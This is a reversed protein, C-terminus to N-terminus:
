CYASIFRKKGRCSSKTMTNAVATSLFNLFLKTEPDHLIATVSRLMSQSLVTHAAFSMLHESSLPSNLVTWYSLVQFVISFATCVSSVQSTGYWLGNLGAPHCKTTLVQPKQDSPAPAMQPECSVLGVVPMSKSEPSSQAHDAPASFDVTILFLDSNDPLSQSDERPSSLSYDLYTKQKIWLHKQLSDTLSKVWLSASSNVVLNKAYAM